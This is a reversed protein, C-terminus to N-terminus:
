FLHIFHSRNNCVQTCVTYVVYGQGHSSGTPSPSSQKGLNSFYFSVTLQNVERLCM